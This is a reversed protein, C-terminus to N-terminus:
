YSMERVLRENRPASEIGLRFVIIAVLLLGVTWGTAYATALGRAGYTPILLYAFFLILADRPVAVALFFQWLKSHTQVIQTMALALGQPVTSGLLILLVSYGDTFSKGFLRLLQPGLLAFLGAGCVIAAATLALNAWFARRFELRNDAGKHYNIISTGVTNAIGPLFLVIAMLSFSASYIAMQSYGNAQRILFASPLWLAPGSTFGILGAPLTFRLIVNRERAFGEYRTKIRQLLCERRLAAALLIFQIMGSLALGVMAGNLGGLWALATCVIFYCVGSWAFAGALARYSELGSLAGMLFGNLTTILLVASAIALTVVLSPTRLVSRAIWPSLVLFASSVVGAVTMSLVSMMGLIRGAREPDNARFEAVYKTTTYPIAFQAILALSVVTNQVMAYEGFTQRGLLNAAIVSFALTSGQNFVAGILNFVVGTQFRSRLGAVPTELIVSDASSNVACM